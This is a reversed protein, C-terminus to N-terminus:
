IPLVLYYQGQMVGIVCMLNFWILNVNTQLIIDFKQGLNPRDSCFYALM